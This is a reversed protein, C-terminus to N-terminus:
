INAKSEFNDINNICRLVQGFNNICDLDFLILSGWEESGEQYILRGGNKM